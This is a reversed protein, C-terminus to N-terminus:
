NHLNEWVSTTKSNVQIFAIVNSSIYHWYRSRSVVVVLNFFNLCFDTSTSSHLVCDGPAFCLSPLRSLIVCYPPSSVLCPSSLVFAFLCCSSSLSIFLRLCSSLSVFALCCRSLPLIVILRLHPFLSVFVLPRSQAGPSCLGKARTRGKM